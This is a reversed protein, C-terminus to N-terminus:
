VESCWEGCRVVGSMVGSVVGSMVGSVVSGCSDVSCVRTLHTM